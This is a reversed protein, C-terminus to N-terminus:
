FRARVTLGKGYPWDQAIGASLLYPDASMDKFMIHAKVLADYEKKDIFNTHGPTLSVYNGGFKPNAVLADFIEGIVAEM